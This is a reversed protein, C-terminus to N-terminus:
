HPRNQYWLYGYVGVAILVGLLILVGVIKLVTKWKRKQHIKYIGFGVGGFVVILIISTGFTM